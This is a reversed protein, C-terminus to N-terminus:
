AATWIRLLATTSHTSTNQMPATPRSGHASIIESPSSIIAIKLAAGSAAAESSDDAAETETAAEETDSSAASSSSDSSGCAVLSMTMAGALALALFKKM